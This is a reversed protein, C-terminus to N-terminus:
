QQFKGADHTVFEVHPHDVEIRRRQSRGLRFVQFLDSFCGGLRVDHQRIELQILAAEVHVAGVFRGARLRHVRVLLRDISGRPQTFDRLVPRINAPHANLDDAAFVQVYNLM